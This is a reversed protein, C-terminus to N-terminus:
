QVFEEDSSYIDQDPDFQHGTLVTRAGILLGGFTKAARRAHGSMHTDLQINATATKPHEHNEKNIATVSFTYTTYTELGFIVTSLGTTKKPETFVSTWKLDELNCKRTRVLYYLVEEPYKRPPNWRIKIKDEGRKDGRLDDPTSPYLEVTRAWGEIYLNGPMAKVRITNDTYSRLKNILKVKETSAAELSSYNEQNTTYEVVYGKVSAKHVKPENWSVELSYPSSNDIRLNTPPGPMLDTLAVELPDSPESNGMKNSMIVRFKCYSYDNTSDYNPLDFTVYNPKINKVEKLDEWEKYKRNM